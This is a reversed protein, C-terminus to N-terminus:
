AASRKKEDVAGSVSSPGISPRFRRNDGDGPKKQPTRTYEYAQYVAPPMVSKLGQVGAEVEALRKNLTRLARDNRSITENLGRIHRDLSPDGRRRVRRLIESTFWIAGLATMLALIGMTTAM